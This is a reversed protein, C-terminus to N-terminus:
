PFSAVDTGACHVCPLKLPKLVDCLAVAPRFEDRHLVLVVENVALFFVLHHGEAEVAFNAHVRPTRKGSSSAGVTPSSLCSASLNVCYTRHYPRILCCLLVLGDDIVQLFDCLFM